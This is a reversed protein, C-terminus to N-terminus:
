ILPTIELLYWVEGATAFAADGVIEIPDGKTVRANDHLTRTPIATDVDGVTTSDAVVVDLGVIPKGGLEVTITGGTTVAKKSAVSLRTIHGSVPAIVFHSTGALLDTQEILGSVYTQVDDDSTPNIEVYAVLSGASNFLADLVIEVDGRVAVAATAHTESSPTDTDNDGAGASNAVVCALGDVETTDLEVTVEGGTSAIAKKVVSSCRAINGAVPALLFMSTAAMLDTENVYQGILVNNGLASPFPSIEVLCWVEGAGAFGSDGVLEIDGTGGASMAPVLNAALFPNNPVATYVEGVAAGTPIVLSLGPVATGALEITLTGGTTTIAKKVVASFRTIYGPLHTGVFHSTGALLDTQNLFASLYVKARDLVMYSGDILTFAIGKGSGSCRYEAMADKGQIVMTDGVGVMAGLDGTFHGNLLITTLADTNSRYHWNHAGNAGGILSLQKSDYAM